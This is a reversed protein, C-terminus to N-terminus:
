WVTWLSEKTRNKNIKEKEKFDYFFINLQFITHSVTRKWGPSFHGKEAVFVLLRTIESHLKPQELILSSSRENLEVLTIKLFILHVCLICFSWGLGKSNILFILPASYSIKNIKSHANHGWQLFINEFILLLYWLNQPGQCCTAIGVLRKGKVASATWWVLYFNEKWSINELEQWFYFNEKWSINEVEQWFLICNKQESGSGCLIFNWGCEVEEFCPCCYNM